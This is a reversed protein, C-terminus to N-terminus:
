RARQLRAMVARLPATVRWSGSERLQRTQQASVAANAEASRARRQLQESRARERVLETRLRRVEARLADVDTATRDTPASPPASDADVHADSANM